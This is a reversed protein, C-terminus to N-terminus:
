ALARAARERAASAAAEDARLDALMVGGRVRWRGGTLVAELSKCGAERLLAAEPDGASPIRFAALDAQLGPELVGFRDEVGLALAGHLTLMELLKRDSLQPFHPRLARAEEFLDLDPTSALSDTGIGVPLGAGLLQGVPAIGNHLWENSRPCTVVGRATAALRGVDTPWTQCVHVATTGDLVGLRDLYAVPRDGTPRFGHALKAAVPALEGSGDRVLDVEAVTEAVHLAVPAGAARAVGVVAELLAPGSSYLTHPSLGCRVRSGCDHEPRYGLEDLRAPLESATIGLVEFFFAGGLGIRAAAEVSPAGYTIDGVCTVGARLCRAAGVATSAAYDDDTWSRMARVIQPLWETFPTPEFLGEVASLGLHTHANVLGPMLICGPLEVVEDEPHTRILDDAAGVAVVHEGRVVVAGLPIPRRSVPVVWDATLLM